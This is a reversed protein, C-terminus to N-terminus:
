PLVHNRNTKGLSCTPPEGLKGITYIGGQPCKPLNGNSALKVYPKIDNETVVTDLNTHGTELAWEQKTGDFQRLNNICAIGSGVQAPRLNPIVILWVFLGITAIIALWSLSVCESPKNESESMAIQPTSEGHLTLLNSTPHRRSKWFQIDRWGPLQAIQWSVSLQDARKVDRSQRQNDGTGSGM